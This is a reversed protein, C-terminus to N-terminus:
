HIWQLDTPDKAWSLRKKLNEEPDTGDSPIISIPCYDIVQKLQRMIGVSLETDDMYIKIEEPVYERLFSIQYDTIHSGLIAVPTWGPAQILLSIADFVGECIIFKKKDGVEIIYPPKKGKPLKPMDYRLNKRGHLLRKQFYIVENGYKFPIVINGEPDYRFELCKSLEGMFGHRSMLYDFGDQNFESCDHYDILGKRVLEPPNDKYSYVSWDSPCATIYEIDPITFKLIDDVNVFSRHCVHCWGVTFEDNIYLKRGTFGSQHGELRCFPCHCQYEGNGLNIFNYVEEMTEVGYAETLLKEFNCFIVKTGDKRQTEKYDM